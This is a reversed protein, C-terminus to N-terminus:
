LTWFKEHAGLLRAKKARKGAMCKGLQTGRERKDNTQNLSLQGKARVEGLDKKIVEAWCEMEKETKRKKPGIVGIEGGWIPSEKVWRLVKDAAVPVEREEL